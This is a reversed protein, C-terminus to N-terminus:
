IEVLMITGTGNTSASVSFTATWGVFGAAPMIFNGTIQGNTVTLPVSLTAGTITFNITYSNLMMNFGTASVTITVLTGPAAYIQGNRSNQYYNLNGWGTMTINSTSNFDQSFTISSGSCNNVKFSVSFAGAINPTGSMQIGTSTATINLWSPKSVESLTFPATGTLGIFADWQQGYVPSPLVDNGTFAVPTCTIEAAVDITDSLTLEGCKNTVVVSVNVNSAAAAPLVSGTQLYLMDDIISVNMWAPVSASQLAFPGTGTLQTTFIYSANVRADPLTFGSAAVPDCVTIEKAYETKAKAFRITYLFQRYNKADTKEWKDFFAVQYQDVNVTDCSRIFNLVTEVWEPAGHRGGIKFAWTNFPKASLLTKNMRQDDFETFIGEPKKDIVRGEIRFYFTQNFYSNYPTKFITNYENYSHSYKFLVSEDLDSTVEQKESIQKQLANSDNGYHLVFYFEGEPLLSSDLDFQNIDWAEGNVLFNLLSAPSRNITTITTGDLAVVKIFMIALSQSWIQQRIPDGPKWKQTYSSKAEFSAPLYEFNYRDDLKISDNTVDLDYDVYKIPNTGPIVIKAM